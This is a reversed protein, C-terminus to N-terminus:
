PIAHPLRLLAKAGTDLQTLLLAKHEDVLKQFKAAHCDTQKSV